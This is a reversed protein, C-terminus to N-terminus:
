CFIFLLFFTLYAAICLLCVFDDDDDDDDNIVGSPLVIFYVTICYFAFTHEFAYEFFIVDACIGIVYCICDM